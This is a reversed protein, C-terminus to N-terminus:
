ADRSACPPYYATGRMLLRATRFGSTSVIEVGAGTEAANVGVDMVGGPHALVIRAPDFRANASVLGHVVTGPVAAAAAVCMGGTMAFSKHMKKMSMMYVHLDMDSAAVCEGSTTRYDSPGSVVAVKPVAPTLDFAKRFDDVYGLREAVMGRIAELRERAEDDPDLEDPLENGKLGLEGARVFIFLNSSDVVSVGVPGLGPVDLRDVPSGTPLLRGTAAGGPRLFQLEIRSGPREVGSITFDGEYTLEGGPTEMVAVILKDTNTNHIVVETAGDRAAVLGSEIAYPGVASSINGCNAKYDVANKGLVVQAFTYDVDVGPRESRKIIAAKSTVVAAGGLGDIQKPDPGGILAILIRDREEGPPPLSAEDLFLAKSTGGRYISCAIENQM